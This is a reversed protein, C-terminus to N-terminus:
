INKAKCQTYQKASTKFQTYQLTYIRPWPSLSTYQTDRAPMTYEAHSQEPVSYVTHEQSQVSISNQMPRSSLIRYLTHGQDPVSYSYYRNEQDPVSYVYTCRQQPVTIVTHKPWASLISCARPWLNIICPRPARESAHGGPMCITAPEIRSDPLM